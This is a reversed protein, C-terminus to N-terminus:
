CDFHADLLADCVGDPPGWVVFGADEGCVSKELVCQFYEEYATKCAASEEAALVWTRRYRNDCQDSCAFSDQTCACEDACAQRFGPETTCSSMCLLAAPLAALLWRRRRSQRDVNV